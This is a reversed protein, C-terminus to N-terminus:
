KDLKQCMWVSEFEVDFGVKRYGKRAPLHSPDNGTAVTAVEMGAKKMEDIAFQYMATGFGRKSFAPSIANLGIEGVNRFPMNLGYSIFGVIEGNYIAKWIEWKSSDEFLSILMDQQALDEPEQAKKYIFDGLIRKFSSFVPKFANLRIAELQPLDTKVAREFLLPKSESPHNQSNM